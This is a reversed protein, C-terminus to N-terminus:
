VWVYDRVVVGSPSGFLVGDLDGVTRGVVEGTAHVVVVGVLDGM